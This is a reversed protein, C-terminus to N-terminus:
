DDRVVILSYLMTSLPGRTIEDVLTAAPARCRDTDPPAPPFEGSNIM